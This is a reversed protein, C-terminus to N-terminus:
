CVVVMGTIMSASQMTQFDTEKLEGSAFVEMMAILISDPCMPLCFMLGNTIHSMNWLGIIDTIM